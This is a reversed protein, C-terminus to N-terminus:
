VFYKKLKLFPSEFLKFSLWAVMYSLLMSLAINAILCPLYSDFLKFRDYAILKDTVLLGIPHHFLYLGYCLKGFEQLLSLSFFRSCWGRNSESYVTKILVYGSIIAVALLGIYAVSKQYFVFKGTFVIIALVVLVSLFSLVSFAKIHHKKIKDERRAVAIISGILLADLHTFTMTYVSTASVGELLLGIRMFAFIIILTFCSFIIKKRFFLIFFPWILYFQEELALSWMYGGQIGEFTGLYSIRWNILYSWFWAQNEVMQDTKSALSPIFIPIIIILMFLMLYYLPFIRLFRRVFFNKLYSDKGATDYLIGTILFGSLVFFLDVGVWGVQLVIGVFSDILNLHGSLQFPISFHYLMVLIIALGRIGDLAPLYERKAENM